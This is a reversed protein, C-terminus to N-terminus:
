KQTIIPLYKFLKKIRQVMNEKPPHVYDSRVGGFQDIKTSTTMYYIFFWIAAATSMVGVYTLYDM